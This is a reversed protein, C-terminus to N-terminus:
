IKKDHTIAEVDKKQSWLKWCNEYGYSDRDEIDDLDILARGIEECQKNYLIIEAYTDYEIIENLDTRNRKPIYGFKRNQKYHKNCLGKACVKNNCGEVSCTKM